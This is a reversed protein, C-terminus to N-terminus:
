PRVGVRDARRLPEDLAALPRRRGGGGGEAEVHSQAIRTHLPRGPAHLAVLGLPFNSAAGLQSHKHLLHLTHIHEPRRGKIEIAFCRWVITSNRILNPNSNMNYGGIEM